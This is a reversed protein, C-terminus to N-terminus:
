QKIQKKIEIWKEDPIAAGMVKVVEAGLLSGYKGCDQLSKGNLYGHLFGAAWLDGAGTTDVPKEVIMASSFVRESGSKIMSGKKGLKVAATGCKESLLDLAKSMDDTGTLTRAEDENAFVIDVYKELLESLINKSHGVVEYAALDLSILCSNKKALRFIEMLLPRNYLLYGETHLLYIGSFDNDSLDDPSLFAAAGLDTRMTRESDPTVLSLCRGTPKDSTKKFSRLDGGISGYRQVYFRGEEDDGVKGLFATPTGLKALGFITNASSGGPVKSPVASVMGIIENMETADVMVMGGKGGRIKPIFDEGVNLLLDLIPSGAGLVKKTGKKM